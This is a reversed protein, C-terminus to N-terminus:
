AVRMMQSVDRRHIARTPIDFVAITHRMVNEAMRFTSGSSIYRVALEFLLPKTITAAYRYASNPTDNTSEDSTTNDVADDIREFLSLALEKSRAAVVLRDAIV